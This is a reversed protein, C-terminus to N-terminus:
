GNTDRDTPHPEDSGAERWEDMEEPGLREDFTELDRADGMAARVREYDGIAWYPPKHRVLNRKKLRSLVSSVTDPDIGTGSAIEERRFAKDDNAALFRVIREGHTESGEFGSEREFTEIDIPM